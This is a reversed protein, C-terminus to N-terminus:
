CAKPSCGGYTYGYTCHNTYPNYNTVVTTRTRMGIGGCPVCVVTGAYDCTAVPLPGPAAWPLAEGASERLSMEPAAFDRGGLQM